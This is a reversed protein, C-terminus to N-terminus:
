RRPNRFVSALRVSAPRAESRSRRDTAAAMARSSFSLVLAAESAFRGRPMGFTDRGGVREGQLSQRRITFGIIWAAINCGITRANSYALDFWSAFLLAARGAEDGMRVGSRRKGPEVNGPESRLEHIRTRPPNLQGILHHTKIVLAFDDACSAIVPVISYGTTMAARAGRSRFEEKLNWM